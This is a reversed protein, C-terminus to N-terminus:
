YLRKMTENENRLQRNEEILEAMKDTYTNLTNQIDNMQMRFQRMMELQLNRVDDRTEERFDLLMENLQSLIESDPALQNSSSSAPNKYIDKGSLPRDLPETHDIDGSLDTISKESVPHNLLKTPKTIGLNKSIFNGSIPRDLPNTRNVNAPSINTVSKVRSSVKSTDSASEGVVEVDSMTQVPRTKPEPQSRNPEPQSRNPKSKYSLELTDIDPTEGKSTITDKKRHDNHTVESSHENPKIVPNKNKVSSREVTKESSSKIEQQKQVAPLGHPDIYFLLATVPEPCHAKITHLLSFGRLEYFLVDGSLTGVALMLGTPAFSVCTIEHPIHDKRIVKSLTPDMYAVLGDLGVSVLLNRNMPSYCIQSAIGNHIKPFAATLTSSYTDWVYVSGSNTAVAVIDKRFPNFTLSRISCDSRSRVNEEGPCQLVAIRKRTLSSYVLLDGNSCGVAILSDDANYSVCNVEQAHSQFSHIVKKYKLDWLRVVGDEGGCILLRANSHINLSKISGTQDLPIPPKFLSTGNSKTLALSGDESGTIVVQHFFTIPM